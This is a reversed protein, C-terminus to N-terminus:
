KKMKRRIHWLVILITIVIVNVSVVFVWRHRPAKQIPIGAPKRISKKIEEVREKFQRSLEEAEKRVDGKPRHPHREEVAKKVKEFEAKADVPPHKADWKKRIISAYEKASQPTLIELDSPIQFFIM